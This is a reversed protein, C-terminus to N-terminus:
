CRVLSSGNTLYASCVRRFHPVVGHTIHDIHVIRGGGCGAGFHQFGHQRIEGLGEAVGAGDVAYATFGALRHFSGALLHRIGDARFGALYVEGSAAAFAVVPGDTQAAFGHLLLALVDDGAGDLVVSHEVGTLSHLLFAEPDGVQRHIFVAQYIRLAM